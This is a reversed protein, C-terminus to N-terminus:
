ELCVLGNSHLAEAAVFGGNTGGAEGVVVGRNNPWIERSNKSPDTLGDLSRWQLYTMLVSCQGM